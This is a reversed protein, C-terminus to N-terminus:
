NIGEVFNDLNIDTVASTGLGETVYYKYQKDTTNFKANKAPILVDGDEKYEIASHQITGNSNVIFRYPTGAVKIEAVQYKYDDAQIQLGYWYLKNSQNGVVGAGKKLGKVNNNPTKFESSQDKTYFYFKYTDGANDKISQSGTKMSGDDSGGFYYMADDILYFKSLM